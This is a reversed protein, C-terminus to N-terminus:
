VKVSRPQPSTCLTTLSVTASAFVIATWITGCPAGLRSSLGSGPQGCTGGQGQSCSAPILCDAIGFCSRAEPRALNADQIRASVDFAGNRKVLRIPLQSQAFSLRRIRSAEARLFFASQATSLIHRFRRDAFGPHLATGDYRGCAGGPCETNRSPFAANPYSSAV